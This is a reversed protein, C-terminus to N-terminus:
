FGEVMKTAGSETKSGALGFFPYLPPALWRYMMLQHYKSVSRRSSYVGLTLDSEAGTRLRNCVPPSSLSEIPPNVM